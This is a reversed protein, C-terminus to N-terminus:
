KTATLAMFALYNNLMHLAIGPIISGLKVYMVCLLVGLLFTYIAINPQLHAFGFVLSSAIAGVWVGWRKAMAPFIFGRFITEELVAPMLVLAFIALSRHTQAAGIFDNNQAQNPDFSPVLLDLLWLLTTSAFLFILLIAVIYLIAKGIDFPRWGLSRWGVRYKRLFLLIVALGVLADLLRFSFAALIDRGSNVGEMFNAVAPVYYSLLQLLLVLVVQLGIWAVIFL